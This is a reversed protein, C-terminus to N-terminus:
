DQFKYGKPIVVIGSETVTFGRKRDTEPDYGIQLGPPISIDKDIIARRVRAKAGVEVNSFIVSNEVCSEHHLRVNYGLNSSILSCGSIICGESVLSNYVTGNKIFKAPPFFSPSTYIPWEQNYLNFIPDISCVDMNSEYFEELAGVDRWYGTERGTVGPVENKLFDFVVVKREQRLLDPIIDSGIDNSSYEQRAEPNKSCLENLEEKPMSKKAADRSFADYLADIKFIYNGMSALARTTDGPMTRAKEPKELFGTMSWDRDVELIGYHRCKDAPVRVAAVTMDAEREIHLDIMERINMKYIHDGGFVAVMQPNVKSIRNFNQYVADATGKYWHRGLRQQAPNITISGVLSGMRNIWSHELHDILSEALTQTLIAITYIGSNVLNSLVFDIIRFKGAFPVAPKTRDRTLPYLRRGEGGALVIALVQPM